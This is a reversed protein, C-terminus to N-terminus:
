FRSVDRIAGAGMGEYEDVDQYKASGHCCRAEHEAKLVVQQHM